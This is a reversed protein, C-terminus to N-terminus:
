ECASFLLWFCVFACLACLLERIVWFSGFGGLIVWFRGFAILVVSFCEFGGLLVWFSRFVCLIM